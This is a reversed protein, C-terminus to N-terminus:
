VNVVELEKKKRYNDWRVKRAKDMKAKVEATGKGKDGRKEFISTLLRRCPHKGYAM